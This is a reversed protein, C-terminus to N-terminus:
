TTAAVPERTQQEVGGDAPTQDEVHELTQHEVDGDAAVHDQMSSEDGDAGLHMDEGHEQEQEGEIQTETQAGPVFNNRKQFRSIIEKTAALRPDDEPVQRAQLGNSYSTLSKVSPRLNRKKMMDWITNATSFDGVTDLSALYLFNSGISTNLFFGRGDMQDLLKKAAAMNFPNRRQLCSEILTIYLALSPNKGTEIYEDVAQVAKELQGRGVYAKVLETMCTADVQHNDQKLMEMVKEVAEINGLEGFARLASYYVNLRRNVYSRTPQLGGGTVLNALEEEFEERGEGEGAMTDCGKSQELLEFIKQFTLHNIPRHNKHTQILAAYCSSNLTLGFAAMRQVVGYAEEVRGATGCANLLALFTRHTPKIGNAEMEAAVQFAREIQNAQGCTSIICNYLVIDPQLGMAKMEDFFYIADMLRQGKMCGTILTHFTNRVPRVGDLQMDEYVDRMLFSRRSFNLEDLVKNYEYINNAYNRLAYAAANQGTSYNRVGFTTQRDRSLAANASDLVPSGSNTLKETAALSGVHSPRQSVTFRGLRQVVMRRM